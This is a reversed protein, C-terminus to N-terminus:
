HARHWITREDDRVDDVFIAIYGFLRM